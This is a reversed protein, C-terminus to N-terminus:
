KKAVMLFGGILTYTQKLIPRVEVVKAPKNKLSRRILCTDTMTTEKENTGKM